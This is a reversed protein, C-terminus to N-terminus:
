THHFPNADRKEKGHRFDAESEACARNERWNERRRAAVARMVSSRTRVVPWTMEPARTMFSLAHSGGKARRTAPTRARSTASIARAAKIRPEFSPMKEKAVTTSPQTTNRTDHPTPLGSEGRATNVATDNSTRPALPSSRM